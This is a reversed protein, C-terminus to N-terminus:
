KLLMMKKNKVIGSKTTLQIFYVGSSMQQGFQDYGDWQIKFQGIQNKNTVLTAINQGLLNYVNISVNQRLGDLLGIDYSITTTPNFPNPYNQHINTQEPVIITKPGLRFYGSQDSLTFIENDINLSPLEQWTVGNKRRYIALDDRDSRVRVEVPTNFHFNENGLLYSARDHFNDEFITSDAILLPQDYSVAGPNGIVSFRGDYSAGYWRSAAKSAALAFNESLTTDGVYASAYIDISYSGPSEFSLHGSYTYAAVTDLPINQNQVALALNTTKSATDTVIVQLFKTFANQQLLSVALKPRDVHRIDLTFITSDSSLEDSVKLMIDVHDDWLKQPIFLVSDGLANSSFSVNDMSGTFDVSPVITVKNDNGIEPDIVASITFVLSTDDIDNVFQGFEMKISDNEWVEVVEALMEKSITPPDNEAVISAHITDRAVAGGNDQAIFIIRHNDGYYNSDSIFTATVSDMGGATDKKTSFGVKILTDSRTNRILRIADESMKSFDNVYTEPNIGMYERSLKAHVEWPTNPGVVVMGLPYDEDLQSTDLVVAAWTIETLIVNDVDTIYRSLVLDPAVQDEVWKHVPHIENGEHPIVFMPTDNVANVTLPLIFIDTLGYADKAVIEITYTGIDDQTPTWTLAGSLSDIIVSGSAPDQPLTRITTAEYTFSDGQMINLDLDTLRVTDTWFIDEDLIANSLSIINPNSNYRLLTDTVLTESINGGVDFARIHAYYRNRHELFLEKTYSNITPALTDWSLFMSNVDNTDLKMISIEYRELGSEDQNVEEFATWQVTLTDKSFLTDGSVFSGGSVAGMSPPTPDFALRTESILGNTINGHKDIIRARIALSDGTKLSNVTDMVAYLENVTRYFQEAPGAEVISDNRSPTVWATGRNLNYFQIQVYGGQALTTDIDDNNSNDNPDIGFTQIPVQVGISDTIGTIWGQVPNLGHTSVLGTLFDAPPKNDVRFINANVLQEIPNNSRDEAVFQFDIDGDDQVSDSVTFQFIWLTNEDNTSEPVQGVVSTGNEGDGFGYIFSLTPIPESSKIPENVTITVRVTDGGIGINDLDPNSINEYVFTAESVINDIFLNNPISISDSDFPNLALDTATIAVEIFGQETMIDPVIFPHYWITGDGSDPLTLDTIVPPDFVSPFSITMSPTALMPENFTVTITDLQGPSAFLESYTVVANSSTIDYTYNVITDRGTNGATDVSTFIMNYTGEELVPDGALFSGADRDGAVLESGTITVSTISGDVTNTFFVEGSVVSESLNWGFNNLINNYSSAGPVINTYTPNTNDLRLTTLGTIDESSIANGAMDSATVSIIFNGNLTKYDDGDLPISFTWIDDGNGSEVLEVGSLRAAGTPDPYLVDIIPVNVSDMPESFTFTVLTSIDGSRVLADGEYTLAASPADRDVSIIIPDSFGSRNGATDIHVTTYKYTGTQATPVDFTIGEQGPTFFGSDIKTKTVGDDIYILGSYGSLINTLTIDVRDQNTLRDANSEGHDSSSNLIPEGPNNPATYDIYLTMPDSPVSVNGASDLVTYTVTFEGSGLDSGNPVFLTDKTKNYGKITKQVLQNTIGSQIYLYLSDSISPLQTVEFQPVRSSTTDDSSSMGSDFEALLNPNTAPTFPTTDLRFNLGASVSSLNGAIDRSKITAIYPGDTTLNGTFSETTADAKLKNSDAGNFYIYVSDTLVLSSVSFTPSADNTLNDNNKFGTDSGDDLDIVVGSVDPATRDITITTTTSSVSRNGAVDTATVYFNFAGDLTNDVAYTLIGSNPVIVSDVLTTTPVGDVKYLLGFDGENLASTTISMTGLNTLNDSDSIGSDDNAVLDPATPTDPATFDVTIVSGSSATSTNGASDIVVYTFTYNGEDLRSSTPVTLTDKLKDLGKRGGILFENSVGNDIFLRISDRVSALQSFEFRPTRNNTINDTNSIGSDDEALLNPDSLITYPTTDVRISLPNSFASLNGAYDKSKMTIEHTFDVLASSTLTHTAAIAIDKQNLVGNVYLFVSDSVTLGGLTFSPTKDNTINDSDSLGSDSAADLDISVGTVVPAVQDVTVTLSGSNLSINGAPDKAYARYAGTSAGTAYVNQSIGGSLESGIVAGDKTIFVSDLGSADLGSVEFFLDALNTLNDDNSTGKDNDAKLDPNNPATPATADVFIAMSGSEASTNGASDVVFYTLTYRDDPLTSGILLTDIIAQSMRYQGVVIDSLGSNLAEYLVRISDRNGVSLGSVELRPTTSSTYDDTDLFGSDDEAILNLINGASPAQTDIRFELARTPDSLNGARDRSVVTASYPLVQNALTTSTFSVSNATVLQRSVTDTGILLFLSDDIAGLATLGAISFAPTTDNTLDDRNSMGTDSADTLDVELTGLNTATKDFTVANGDTTATVAVGANVAQDFFAINFNIAGEPDGDQLTYTSTWNTTAGTAAVNNGAITITPDSILSEDATFSLTVIDGVRAMDSNYGNDSVLAVTTLTPVTRDFTVSSGDTTATATTGSNGAYDMFDLSLGILGDSDTNQMTYTGTWIANTGGAAEDTVANGSVTLEPTQLIENGVISVTIVDDVKAMTALNSSNSSYSLTTVSPATKDFTVGIGSTTTIVQDGAYGNLDVYDVSFPVTFGAGGNDDTADTMTYTAVWSEKTGNWSLAKSATRTISNITIDVSSTSLEENSDFALTLVSGSKAYANNFTNDSTLTVNSLLPQSKDYNINNGDADNVLATLTVGDNGASDSFAISFPITGNNENETMTYTATWSQADGGISVTASQTAISVTPEVIDENAVITLTIINGPVALEDGSENNSAISATTITPTTKDVRVADDGGTLSTVAAGSNGALDTFQINFAAVGDSHGGTVTKAATWNSADAGQTVTVDATSGLMSVTPSNINEDSSITLTLEDGSAALHDYTNDSSITVTPLTPLTKDYTVFSGDTTATLTTGVNGTADTYSSIRIPITAGDIADDAPSSMFYKATFSTTSNRTVSANNGNVTIAPDSGTKIPEDSTLNITISDNVVALTSVPNGSFMTVTTFSPSQKDFTVGGDLDNAVAIVQTGVNNAMDTFDVTFAVVGTNDSSQMTYTATYSNEGNSGSAIAAANGSITLTPTQINESGTVSITIVDNVKALTAGNSNNSSINVTPLTPTTEDYEVADGTIVATVQTGNNGAIDIFDVTFALDGETDGSQMTYTAAWTSNSGSLTAANGDLTVTPPDQINESSTFNLTVIDGEKAYDTNDNNSTMSLATLTPVSRDFTVSSGNTTATVVDGPIGALDSFVISIAVAGQTDTSNTTISATYDTASGGVSAVTAARGAIFVTPAAILDEDASITLTINNGQKAYADNANNSAISVLSLTPKTNDITVASGASSVNTTNGSADALTFAYSTSGDAEEGDLTYSIEWNTADTSSINGTTISQGAISASSIGWPTLVDNTQLNEDAVLTVTIVDGDTALTSTSNSSAVTISNTGPDTKDFTVNNGSLISTAQTGQNGALDFFDITFAVTGNGDESDMVKTASWTLKDGSANTESANEGAITATPTQAEESTFFTLTVTDLPKARTTGITNNSAITVGTLTPDISDFIVSTGDTSATINTIANGARDKIDSISFAVAGQNDGGQMTRSISYTANPANPNPTIANGDITVTPADYLIEDSTMTITVIDNTKALTTTSNNSVINVSVNPDTKDITVSSGDTTTSLVSGGLNENADYFSIAFTAAGEAHTSVTNFANWSANSGNSSINIGSIEGAIPFSNDTSLNEDTTFAITIVDDTTAYLSNVGNDSTISATNVSPRVLDVTFVSGADGPQSVQTVINRIRIAIDYDGNPNTPFNAMSTLREHKFAITADGNDDPSFLGNNSWTGTTATAGPISSFQAGGDFSAELRYTTAATGLGTGVMTFGGAGDNGNATSTSINYKSYGDTKGAPIFTVAGRVTSLVLSLLIIKKISKKIM